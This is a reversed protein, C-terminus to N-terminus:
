QSRELTSNQPKEEELTGKGREQYIGQKYALFLAEQYYEKNEFRFAEKTEQESHTKMYEILTDIRKERRDYRPDYREGFFSITWDRLAEKTVGFYDAIEEQTKESTIMEHLKSFGGKDAYKQNFDILNM